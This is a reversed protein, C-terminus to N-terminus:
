GIDSEEITEVIELVFEKPKKAEDWGECCADRAAENAEAWVAANKDDEESLKGQFGGIDWGELEWWGAAADMPHVGAADFVKRAAALGKRLEEGTAGPINLKLM